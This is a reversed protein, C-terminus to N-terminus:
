KAVITGTTGSKGGGGGSAAAILTVVGLAIIVGTATIGGFAAGTAGEAGAGEPVIEAKKKRADGEKSKDNDAQAVVIVDGKAGQLTSLNSAGEAFAFSPSLLLAIATVSVCKMIQRKM